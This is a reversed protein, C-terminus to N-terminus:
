KEAYGKMWKEAKAVTDMSFVEVPDNSPNHAIRNAEKFVIANASKMVRLESLGTPRMSEPNNM